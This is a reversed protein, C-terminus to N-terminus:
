AHQQVLENAVNLRLNMKSTKFTLRNLNNFYHVAVIVCKNKWIQSRKESDVDTGLIIPLLYPCLM